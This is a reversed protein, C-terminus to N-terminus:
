VKRYNSVESYTIFELCPKVSLFRLFYESCLRRGVENVREGTGEM